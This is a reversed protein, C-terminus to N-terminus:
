DVRCAGGVVTYIFRKMPRGGIMVCLNIIAVLTQITCVFLSILESPVDLLLGVYVATLLLILRIFVLYNYM